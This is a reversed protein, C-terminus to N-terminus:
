LLECRCNDQGITHLKDNGTAVDVFDSLNSREELGVGKKVDEGEKIKGMVDGKRLRGDGELCVGNLFGDMGGRLQAKGGKGVVGTKDDGGELSRGAVERGPIGAVSCGIDVVPFFEEAFHGMEVVCVALAVEFTPHRKGGRLAKFFTDAANTFPGDEGLFFPAFPKAVVAEKHFVFVSFTKGLEFLVDFVADGVAAFGEVFEV